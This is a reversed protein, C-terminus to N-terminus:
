NWNEFAATPLVFYKKTTIPNKGDMVNTHNSPHFHNVIAAARVSLVSRFTHITLLVDFSLRGKVVYM